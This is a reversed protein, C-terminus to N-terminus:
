EFNVVFKRVKEIDKVTGYLYDCDLLDVRFYLNEVPISSDLLTFDLIDCNQEISISIKLGEIIPNSLYFIKRNELVDLNDIAM